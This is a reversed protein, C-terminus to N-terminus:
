STFICGQKLGYLVYCFESQDNQVVVCWETDNYLLKLLTVFKDMSGIRKIVMWLAERAVSDIAKELGFRCVYRCLYPVRKEVKKM